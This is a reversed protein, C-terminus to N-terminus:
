CSRRTVRAVITPGNAVKADNPRPLLKSAFTLIWEVGRINEMVKTALLLAATAM